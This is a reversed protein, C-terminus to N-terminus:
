RRWQRSRAETQAGAGLLAQVLALAMLALVGVWAAVGVWVWVKAITVMFTLGGAKGLTYSAVTYMGLPFVMSWLRPEYTLPFRRLVHRWLGFLVLLPIWWSGFSWLVMSTGLVFSRLEGMPFGGTSAPLVLLGAAARVSIATAGMTIWYAPGMERPTVEVVMLRLVIIVVLVLYLVTGLGWLCVAAEALYREHAQTGAHPVLGAAVISLSQTGVVWIFWTGNFDRLVPRHARAVVSWPLGYNLVVWTAGAALGLGASVVPHGAMIFRAGLVDAGAVFTFYALAVSPDVLSRRFFPWWWVARAVYALVLTCFAGVGVWLAVDSLVKYGLLATGVSIISSAMVWAFYGPDLTALSRALLGQPVPPLALAEEKAPPEGNRGLLVLDPDSV